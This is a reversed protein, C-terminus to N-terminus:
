KTKGWKIDVKLHFNEFEAVSTLGGWVAGSVRLLGDVVSFIRNPDNNLGHPQQVSVLNYDNTEPQFSVYPEWGSLDKGNFLSKWESGVAFVPESALLTCLLLGCLKM